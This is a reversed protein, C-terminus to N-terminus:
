VDTEGARTRKIIVRKEKDEEADKRAVGTVRPVEVRGLRVVEIPRFSVHVDSRNYDRSYAIDVAAIVNVFDGVQIAQPTVKRLDGEEQLFFPIPSQLRWKDRIM